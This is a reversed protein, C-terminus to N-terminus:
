RPQQPDNGEAQERQSREAAAAAEEEAQVLESDSFSGAEGLVARARELDADEVFVDHTGVARAYGSLDGKAVADIGAERLRDCVMEAEAGSGVSIVLKL